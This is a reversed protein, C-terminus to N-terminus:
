SGKIPQRPPSVIVFKDGRKEVIVGRQRLAARFDPDNQLPDKVWPQPVYDTDTEMAAAMSRYVGAKRGTARRAKRHKRANEM